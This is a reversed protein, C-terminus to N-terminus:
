NIISKLAAWLGKGRSVLLLFLILGLGQPLLM